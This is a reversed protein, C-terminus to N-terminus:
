HWQYQNCFDLYLPITQAFHPRWTLWTLRQSYSNLSQDYSCSYCGSPSNNANLIPPHCLPPHIWITSHRLFSSTWLTWACHLIVHPRWSRINLSLILTLLLAGLTSALHSNPHKFMRFSTWSLNLVPMPVKNNLPKRKGFNICFMQKTALSELKMGQQLTFLELKDQM